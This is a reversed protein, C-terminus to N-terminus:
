KKLVKSQLPIASEIANPVAQIGYLATLGEAITTSRAPAQRGDSSVAGTRKAALQSGALRGETPESERCGLVQRTCVASKLGKAM